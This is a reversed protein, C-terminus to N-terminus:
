LETLSDVLVTNEDIKKGTIKVRQGQEFSPTCRDASDGCRWNSFDLVVSLAPKGQTEYVFVWEDNKQTINGEKEFLSNSIESQPMDGCVVDTIKWLARERILSIKIDKVITDFYERVSVEATTDNTNIPIIEFRKPFEQACVIPDYGRSSFSSSISSIKTKFNQSLVDADQYSNDSLAFKRSFWADYFTSVTQEPTKLSVNSVILFVLVIFVVIGFISASVTKKM